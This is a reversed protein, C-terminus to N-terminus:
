HITHELKRSRAVNAKIGTTEGGYAAAMGTKVQVVQGKRAILAKDYKNRKKVRANRDEKKRHKTLGKNKMIEYTIGRKKGDEVTDEFGGYRPEATYHEKKKALYAKKKKAFDALLSGDADDDDDFGGGTAGEDDSGAAAGFSEAPARRRKRGGDDGGHARLMAGFADDNDDDNDGGNFTMSNDGRGGSLADMARRLSKGSKSSGGGGGGEFPDNEAAAASSPASFGGTLDALREFEGIDGIDDFNDLRGAINERKKIKKKEQKTLVRRVFNSEEWERREEEEEALVRMDGADALTLGDSAANEPKDGFEDRLSAMIESNKMKKRAAELQREKKADKKENELYPMAQMKPARYLEKSAKPAADSGDSDADDEVSDEDESDEDSDQYKGKKSKKGGKALLASPNPRLAAGSVSKGGEEDDAGGNSSRKLLRDIQYKLKGDLPRMKEMVYRLKLLQKMVPHARVSKGQAKMYLYFVVNVCYSLLIQQKVELYDVIDDDVEQSGSNMKNLFECVPAVRTKLETVREKLEAVIGALEPSNAALLEM